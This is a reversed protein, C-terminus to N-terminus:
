REASSTFGRCTSLEMSLGPSVVQVEMVMQVRKWLIFVSLRGRRRPPNYYYFAKM